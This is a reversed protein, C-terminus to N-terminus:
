WNRQSYKRYAEQGWGALKGEDDFFLPACEDRTIMGDSWKSEVFYYWTNDSNYVENKLPEGMISLVQEKSMGKHLLKLHARNQEIIKRNACSTVLFVLFLLLSFRVIKKLM